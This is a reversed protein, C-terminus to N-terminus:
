YYIPRRRIKMYERVHKKLVEFDLEYAYLTTANRLNPLIIPPTFWVWDPGVSCLDHKNFQIVARANYSNIERGGACFPYYVTFMNHDKPFTDKLWNFLLGSLDIMDDVSVLYCQCTSCKISMAAMGGCEPRPRVPM